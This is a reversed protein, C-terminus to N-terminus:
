SGLGRPCCIGDKDDKKPCSPGLENVKEDFAGKCTTSDYVCIGGANPCSTLEPTFRQGFYGTFVMILVVLVILVVIAIIITNLSLGQAKKDM